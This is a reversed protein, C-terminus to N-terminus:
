ESELYRRFRRHLSYSAANLNAPHFVVTANKEDFRLTGGRKTFEPTEGIVVVGLKNCRELWPAVANELASAVFMMDVQFIRTALAEKSVSVIRVPRRQVRTLRGSRVIRELAETVEEAGAVGIVYEDANVPKVGSTLTVYDALQAMTWAKWLPPEMRGAAAAFTVCASLVLGMLVPLAKTLWADVQLRTRGRTKFGTRTLNRIIAPM